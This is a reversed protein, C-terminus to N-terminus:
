NDAINQPFYVSLPVFPALINLLLYQEFVFILKDAGTILL